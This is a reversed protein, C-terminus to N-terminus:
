RSQEKTYSNKAPTHQSDTWPLKRTRAPALRRRLKGAYRSANGHKGNSKKAGIWIKLFAHSTGWNTYSAASFKRADTATCSLKNEAASDHGRRTGPITTLRCILGAQLPLFAVWKPKVAKNAKKKKANVRATITSRAAFTHNSNLIKASTILGHKSGWYGTEFHGASQKEKRIQRRAEREYGEHKGKRPEVSTAPSRPRRHIWSQLMTTSKKWTWEQPVRKPLPKNRGTNSGLKGRGCYTAQQQKREPYNRAAPLPPVPWRTNSSTRRPLATLAPDRAM